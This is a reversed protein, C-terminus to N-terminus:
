KDPMEDPTDKSMNGVPPNITFLPRGGANRFGNPDVSVNCDRMPKCEIGIVFARVSLPPCNSVHIVITADENSAGAARFWLHMAFKKLLTDFYLEYIKDKKIPFEDGMKKIAVGDTTDGKERIYLTGWSSFSTMDRNRVSYNMGSRNVLTCWKDMDLSFGYPSFLTWGFVLLFFRLFYKYMLEGKAKFRGRCRFAALVAIVV